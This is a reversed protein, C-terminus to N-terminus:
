RDRSRGRDSDDDYPKGSGLSSVRKDQSRSKSANTKELPKIIDNMSGKLPSKSRTRSAPKDKIDESVKRGSRKSRKRSAAEITEEEKKSDSDEFQQLVPSAQHSLSSKHDRSRLRRGEFAQQQGYSSGDRTKRPSTPDPIEDLELGLVHKKKHSKAPLTGKQRLKPVELARQETPEPTVENVGEVVFPSAEKILEEETENTTEVSQRAEQQDDPVETEDEETITAFELAQELEERNLFSPTLRLQRRRRRRRRRIAPKKLSLLQSILIVPRHSEEADEVSVDAAAIEEDKDEILVSATEEITAADEIALEAESSEDKNSNRLEISHIELSDDLLAEEAGSDAQEEKTELQEEEFAVKDEAVELHEDEKDIDDERGARRRGFNALISAIATKIRKVPSEEDHEIKHKGSDLQEINDDEQIATDSIQEEQSVSDQKTEDEAPDEIKDISATEELEIEAAVDEPAAEPAEESEEVQVGEEVAAIPSTEAEINESEKEEAVEEGDTRSLGVDQDEPVEVDDGEGHKDANEIVIAPVEESEQDDEVAEVEPATEAVIHDEAPEENINIDEADYSDEEDESEDIEELQPLGITDKLLDRSIDIARDLVDDDHEGRVLEENGDEQAEMQEVLDEIFGEVNHESIEVVPMVLHDANEIESEIIIDEDNGIHFDGISGPLSNDEDVQESSENKSADEIMPEQQVGSNETNEKDQTEEISLVPASPYDIVDPAAHSATETEGSGSAGNVLDSQSLDARSAEALTGEHDPIAEIEPPEIDEVRDDATEDEVITDIDPVTIDEKTESVTEDEVISEIEPVTIDKVAVNEVPHEEDDSERASAEEVPAGVVEANEQESQPESDKVPEALESIDPQERESDVDELPEAVDERREIVESVVEEEEDHEDEDFSTSYEDPIPEITPVPIEGVQISVDGPEMEQEEEQVDDEDEINELEDSEVRVEEIGDVALGGEVDVQETVPVTEEVEVLEEVEATTEEQEEIPVIEEVEDIPQVRVQVDEVEPTEIITLNEEEVVLSEESSVDQEIPEEDEEIPEVELNFDHVPPPEIITLDENDVEELESDDDDVVIEEIEPSAENEVVPSEMEERLEPDIIEEIGEDVESEEDYEIEKNGVEEAEASAKGEDKQLREPTEEAHMTTVDRSPQSSSRIEKELDEAVSLKMNWKKETEKLFELVAEPEEEEVSKFIPLPPGEDSSPEEEPPQQRDEKADSHLLNVDDKMSEFQSEDALSGESMNEDVDPAAIMKESQLEHAYFPIPVPAIEESTYDDERQQLDEAEDNTTNDPEEKATKNDTLESDAMYGSPAHKQKHEPFLARSAVLSLLDVKSNYNSAHNTGETEEEEEGDDLGAEYGEIESEDVNEHTRDVSEIESASESVVESEEDEEISQIDQQTAHEEPAQEEDEDSTLELEIPEEENGQQGFYHSEANQSEESEDVEDQIQYNLADSLRPRGNVVTYGSYSAVQTIGYGPHSQIQPQNGYNFLSDQDHQDVFSHGALGPDIENIDEEEDEEPEDEEPEDEEPEDEEPEDDYEIEQQYSQGPNYSNNSYSGYPDNGYQSYDFHRIQPEQQFVHQQEEDEEDQVEIIDDDDDDSIVHVLENDSVIEDEDEELEEDEEEEEEAQEGETEEHGQRDLLQGLKVFDEDFHMTSYREKMMETRNAEENKGELESLERTQNSKLEHFRSKLSDIWGIVNDADQTHFKLISGTSTDQHISLQHPYSRNIFSNTPTLHLIHQQQPQQRNSIPTPTESRSKEDAKTHQKNSSNNYIPKLKFPSPFQDSGM